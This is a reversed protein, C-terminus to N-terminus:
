VQQLDIAGPTRFIISISLPTGSGSSCTLLYGNWSMSGPSLMKKALFSLFRAELARVHAHTHTAVGCLRQLFNLLIREASLLEAAPGEVEAVATGAPVHQGDAALPTARCRGGYAAFVVELLGLGALVPRVASASAAM